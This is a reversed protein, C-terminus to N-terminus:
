LGATEGSQSIFVCIDDRFVPTKRDLFDSALELTVPLEGLEEVLSRAALASYYSTGCAIFTVRRARRLAELHTKM